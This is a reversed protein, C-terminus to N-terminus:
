GGTQKGDHLQSLIASIRGDDADQLNDTVPAIKTLDRITRMQLIFAGCGKCMALHLRMQLAEFVGLDGDILASSRLAVEKCSLM